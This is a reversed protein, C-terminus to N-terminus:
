GASRSEAETLEFTSLARIAACSREVMAAFMRDGRETRAGYACGFVAVLPGQLMALRYDTWAQRADYGRVGLAVLEARYREVIAREHDRRDTAALGTGLLYALDRAPLGISLTQWDVAIVGAPDGPSFLLNDLRYDGHVPAFCESRALAWAEIRDTSERLTAVTEADLLPGVSTLFTEVTPAYLEALTAIDEPGSATIWGLDLLAPDCWRPAHLGALNVAAARAQEPTCGRIQDGQVAPAADELLLAFRGDDTVESVFYAIPARVRLTPALDTYFRAETRYAGAVLARAAPDEAPLKLLMTDPLSGARTALRLRFCSGMQGSGVPEAARLAVDAGLAESLWQSTAEDISGIAAATM